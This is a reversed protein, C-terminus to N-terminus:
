LLIKGKQWDDVVKRSVYDIDLEGKKKFKRMKKAIEELTEYADNKMEIGYFRELASPNEEIFKKIIETAAIDPEKLQSASIANLLALKQEDNEKYQLVGPTDVLMIKKGIKVLQKGRTFGAQSSTPAAARHKLINILSSKGTNPYGVVGVKIYEKLKKHKLKKRAISTIKKRLITTGFKEKSSVFVVNPIEKKIKDLKEKSVLDCKNLVIIFDKGANKVKKELEDNRSDLPFRADVVELIIDSQRIVENVIRWFPKKM